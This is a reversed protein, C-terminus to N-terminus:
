FLFASIFVLFHSATPVHTETIPINEAQESSSLLGIVGGTGSTDLLETAVTGAEESVVTGVLLLTSLGVGEETTAGVDEEAPGAGTDELSQAAGFSELVAWIPTESIIYL